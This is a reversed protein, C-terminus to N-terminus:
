KDTIEQPVSSNYITYWSLGACPHYPIAITNIQEIDMNLSLRMYPTQETRFYGALTANSEILPQKEIAKLICEHTLIPLTDMNNNIHPNPLAGIALLYNPYTILDIPTRNNM